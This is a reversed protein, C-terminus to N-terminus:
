GGEQHLLWAIRRYGYRGYETALDTMRALLREKDKAIKTQCRQSSRPQGMARCARRESMALERRVHDM